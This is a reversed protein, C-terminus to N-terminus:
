FVLSRQSGGPQDTTYDQPSNVSIKVVQTSTMKLTLTLDALYM